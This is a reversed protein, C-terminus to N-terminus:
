LHVIGLGPARRAIEEAVFRRHCRRYDAECCLLCYAIGVRVGDALSDLWASALM